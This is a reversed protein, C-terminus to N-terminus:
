FDEAIVSQLVLNLCSAYDPTMAVPERPCVFKLAATGIRGDGWMPHARGTIHVFENAYRAAQLAQALRRPRQEPAAGLLVRALLSVDQLTVPLPKRGTSNQLM